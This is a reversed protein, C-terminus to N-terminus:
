LLYNTTLLSHYATLLLHYTTLLVYYTTLLAYAQTRAVAPAYAWGEPIVTSEGSSLGTCGLRWRIATPVEEDDTADM